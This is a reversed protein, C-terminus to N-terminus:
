ASVAQSITNTWLVASAAADSLELSGSTSEFARGASARGM